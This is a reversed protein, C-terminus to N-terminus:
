PEHCEGTDFRGSDQIGVNAACGTDSRLGVFPTLRCQRLDHDAFFRVWVTWFVDYRQLEAWM